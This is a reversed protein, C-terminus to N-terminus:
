VTRRAASGFRNRASPYLSSFGSASFQRNFLILFFEAEEPNELAPLSWSRNPFDFQSCLWVRTLPLASKAQRVIKGNTPMANIKM